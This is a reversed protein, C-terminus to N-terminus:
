RQIGSRGPRQDEGPPRSTLDDRPAPTAKRESIIGAQTSDEVPTRAGNATPARRTALKDWDALVRDDDDIPGLSIHIGRQMLLCLSSVLVTLLVLAMNVWPWPSIPQCRARESEYSVTAPNAAQTAFLQGNGSTSFLCPTAWDLAFDEDRKLALRAKAMAEDLSLRAAVARYFSRSFGVAADDGIEHRMAVVAPLGARYLEAAIGTLGHPGLAVAGGHCANLVFLRPWQDATLGHLEEALDTGSVGVADGFEDQVFLVPQGDVWDGHGMFHVVHFGEELKEHLGRRSIDKLHHFTVGATAALRALLHKERQIELPASDNTDAGIVLVRLNRGSPALACRPPPARDLQRVISYNTSVALHREYFLLEWPLAHLRLTEEGKSSDQIILIIRLGYGPDHSKRFLDGVTGSFVAEFLRRGAEEPPLTKKYCSTPPPVDAILERTRRSCAATQPIRYGDIGPPVTFVASGRGHLSDTVVASYKGDTLHALRLEFNRYKM